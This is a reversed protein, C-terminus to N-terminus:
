KDKVEARLTQLARAMNDAIALVDRAFSSVGYIRSEAVERETRRRLNEMEALTRLLKDKLEANELRLIDLIDVSGHTASTPVPGAEADSKAAASSSGEPNAKIDAKQAEFEVKRPDNM